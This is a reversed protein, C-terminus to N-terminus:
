KCYLPSDKFEQGVQKRQGCGLNKMTRSRFARIGTVRSIEL